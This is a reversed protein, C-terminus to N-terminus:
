SKVTQQTKFNVGRHLKLPAVKSFIAELEKPNVSKCNDLLYDVDKRILKNKKVQSLLVSKIKNEKDILENAVKIRSNSREDHDNRMAELRCVKDEIDFIAEILPTASFTYEGKEQSLLVAKKLAPNSTLTLEKLYPNDNKDFYIGASLGSLMNKEIRSIIEPESLLVECMLATRSSGEIEVNVISIPSNIRGVVEDVKYNHEMIVKPFRKGLGLIGRHDRNFREGIDKIFDHTLMVKTHSSDVVPYDQSYIVLAQATAVGDAIKKLTKVETPQFIKRSM